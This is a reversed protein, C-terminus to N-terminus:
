TLNQQLVKKSSSKIYFYKSILSRERIKMIEVIRKPLDAEKISYGKRRTRKKMIVKIVLM